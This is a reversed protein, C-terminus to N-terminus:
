LAVREAQDLAIAELGGNAELRYPLDSLVLVEDCTLPVAVESSPM